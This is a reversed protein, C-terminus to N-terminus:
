NIDTGSEETLTDRQSQQQTQRSNSQSDAQEDGPKKTREQNKATVKSPEQQLLM